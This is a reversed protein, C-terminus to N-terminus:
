EEVVGVCIVLFREVFKISDKFWFLLEWLLLRTCVWLMYIFLLYLIRVVFSWIRVEGRVLEKFKSLVSM